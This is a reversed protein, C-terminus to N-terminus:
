EMVEAAIARTLRSIIHAGAHPFEWMLGSTEHAHLARLYQTRAAVSAEAEGELEPLTEAPPIGYLDDM